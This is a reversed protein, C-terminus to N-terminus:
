LLKRKGERSAFHNPVIVQGTGCVKAVRERNGRQSEFDNLARANKMNARLSGPAKNNVNASKQGASELIGIKQPDRKAKRRGRVRRSKEGGHTGTTKLKRTRVMRRNSQKEVDLHKLGNMRKEKHNRMFARGRKREDEVSQERPLGTTTGGAWERMSSPGEGRKKCEIDEDLPGIRRLALTKAFQNRKAKITSRGIKNPGTV